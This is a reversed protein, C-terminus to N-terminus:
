KNLNSNVELGIYQISMFIICNIKAIANPIYKYLTRLSTMSAAKSNIPATNLSTYSAKLFYGPIEYTEDHKRNQATTHNM